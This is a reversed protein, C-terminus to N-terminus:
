LLSCKRNVLHTNFYLQRTLCSVIPSIQYRTETRGCVEQSLLHSTSAWIGSTSQSSGGKFYIGKHTGPKGNLEETDSSELSVYVKHKMTEPFLVALLLRSVNKGAVGEEGGM